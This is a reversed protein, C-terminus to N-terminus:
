KTEKLRNILETFNPKEVVKWTGRGSNKLFKLKSDPVMQLSFEPEASAGAKLTVKSHWVDNFYAPIQGPLKTGYVSPEWNISGLLDDKSVALHITVIVHCPLTILDALASKVEDIARGWDQQTATHTKNGNKEKAWALAADAGFTLSDIVLVAAGSPLIGTDRVEMRLRRFIDWGEAGRLNVIGGAVGAYIDDGKNDFDCVVVGGLDAASRCLTSKGSGSDGIVLVRRFSDSPRASKLDRIAPAVKSSGLIMTM